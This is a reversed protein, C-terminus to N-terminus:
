HPNGSVNEIKRTIEDMYPELSVGKDLAVLIVGYNEIQRILIQNGKNDMCSFGQFATVVDSFRKNNTMSQRAGALTEIAEAKDPYKIIISKHNGMSYALAEGIRFIDKYDIYYFNSLALNGKLYIVKRVPDDEKFNNILGPYNGADPIKQGVLEALRALMPQELLQRSSCSLNVYYRSKWFSIYDQSVASLNGYLQSWEVAQQMVSYIGYASSDDAMEYIELLINSSSPDAYQASVVRSFGYELYLDAGGDILSFLDDGAYVHPESVFKWGDLESLTPLLKDIDQGSLNQIGFILGVFFSISLLMKM